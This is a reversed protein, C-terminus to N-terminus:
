GDAIPSCWLYPSLAHYGYCCDSSDNMGTPDLDKITTHSPSSLSLLSSLVRGVMLYRVRRQLKM